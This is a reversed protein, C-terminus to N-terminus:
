PVSWLRSSPSRCSCTRPCLTGCPWPRHRRCVPRCSSCSVGGRNSVCTACFAGRGGCRSQSVPHIAGRPASAHKLPRKPSADLVRCAGQHHLDRPPPAIVPLEEAGKSRALMQGAHIPDQPPGEMCRANVSRFLSRKVCKVGAAQREGRRTLSASPRM